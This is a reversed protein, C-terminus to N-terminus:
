SNYLLNEWRNKLNFPDGDFIIEIGEQVKNFNDRSNYMRQVTYKDDEFDYYHFIQYSNTACDCLFGLTQGRWEKTKTIPLTKLFNKGVMKISNRKYKSKKKMLSFM